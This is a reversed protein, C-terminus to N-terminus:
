RRRTTSRSRYPSPIVSSPSGGCGLLSRWLGIRVAIASAISAATSTEGRRHGVVPDRVLLPLDERLFVRVVGELLLLTVVISILGLLLGSGIRRVGGTGKDPNM